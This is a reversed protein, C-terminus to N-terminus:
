PIFTKTQGDLEEMTVHDELLFQYWMGEQMTSVNLHPTKHAKRINKFPPLGPNPFSRDELVHYRYLIEHYQSHLFQPNVATEMFTRILGALAKMKVHLAGLGGASPPRHLVLEEPKVLMDAYIWSKTASTITNIDMVRLDVSHTRFWVRSFCFQNM